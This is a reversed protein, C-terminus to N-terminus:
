ESLNMEESTSVKEARIPAAGRQTTREHTIIARRGGSTKCEEVRSGRSEGERQRQRETRGHCACGWSNRRCCSKCEEVGDVHAMRIVGSEHVDRCRQDGNVTGDPGKRRVPQHTNNILHNGVAGDVLQGGSEVHPPLAVGSLSRVEGVLLPLGLDLGIADQRVRDVPGALSVRDEVESRHRVNDETV